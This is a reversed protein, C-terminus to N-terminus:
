KQIAGQPTSVTLYIASRVREIDNSTFTTGTSTPMASIASAIRDTVAKPLSGGALILNTRDVLSSPTRALPLLSDLQIGIRSETVDTTSRTTYIFTWLQNPVSIATTDNAIEFEPAYLGASALMGSQVYSPEFFNFVTPARMSAESLASEPNSYNYRGNNSAANFARLVATVRLLPEKLKGFSATAAVASSRAEYDLLIARVVAAMDGRVGSGNNAFVQAVRYVYGPSPNGTVLRQILQRAIFPGTNPHNFLTDLMMKLDKSGGQNAPIQVGGVVTKAGDEHFTPFMVMPVMYNAAAGRFNAAVSTDAAYSLGTFVKAVETITKQDYTPIPLGLADLKLTGDPQLQNLGITFLQMVERAYNEDPSTLVQGNKDTTAKANRLSSLYVGMIPSMTVQDLIDHFNGFAGQTFIDYYNAMGRPTNFLTSNVDSVVLIESLAFAVRQRLQDPATVVIKWWADQRNQQSYQPNDGVAFTRFDADTADLHLSAPLTMQADIWARLDSQRKGTLADIEAQMPGFTTQILFRSADPATLPVDALAPAAPPAVFTSSGSSQIFSGRLEGGPYTATQIDVYLRGDKLAQVVDAASYTGIASIPWTLGNVQGAPLRLVEAGVDAGSGIRLYVATEPSSLNSFTLNVVGFSNDGSLQVTSTGYATSTSAGAVARLSAVYLTGPNYFISISAVNNTGAIYGPGTTLNLTVDKNISISANNALAAISVNASTAGAPITVSAPVSTYDFGNIASGGLTYYVTVASTTSGTRSITFVGPPAGKADTTATTAAVSVTAENDSTLDYVEVLAAGTTGGVGTVQITYNAGPQLDVVLAADKSGAPFPFAGAQAFAASIAAGNVADWNDNSTIQTANADLVAIAPDSIVGSVGFPALAPGAARVLIKRAGGGPAIVLGSILIGSGTGVQARTSLNILRGTGSLDYVEVLAIGSASGVGSVQASYGGPALTGVLASDRTGTPLAFAGTSSFTTSTAPSAPSVTTGWNDNSLIKHGASDFVDIQPDSLQGSVGFQSLTPGVARILVNKSPGPGIVFGVVAINNGSGVQARTSLNSLRENEAGLSLQVFTLACACLLSALSLLGKM